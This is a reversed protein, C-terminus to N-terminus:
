SHSESALALLARALLARSRLMGFQGFMLAAIMMQVWRCAAILVRVQLLKLKAFSAAAQFVTDSLVLVTLGYWPDRAGASATSLWVRQEGTAEAV